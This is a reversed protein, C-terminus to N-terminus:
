LFSQYKQRYMQYLQIGKQYTDPRIKDKLQEFVINPNSYLLIKWDKKIYYLLIESEENTLIINNQFAFRKIDDTTLQNIYNQIFIDKM